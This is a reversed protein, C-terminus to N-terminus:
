FREFITVSAPRLNKGTVPCIAVDRPGPPPQAAAGLCTLALILISPKAM